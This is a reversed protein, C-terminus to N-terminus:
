FGWKRAETRVAFELPDNDLYDIEIPPASIPFHL